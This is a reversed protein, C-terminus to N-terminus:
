PAEVHPVGEVQVYGNTDGERLVTFHTVPSGDVIPVPFVAEGPPFLQSDDDAAAAGVNSDGWRIWAAVSARVAIVRAGEPIATAASSTDTAAVTARSGSLFVTPVPSGSPFRIESGIKVRSM